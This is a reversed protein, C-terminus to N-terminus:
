RDVQIEVEALEEEPGQSTEEPEATDVRAGLCEEHPMSAQMDNFATLILNRTKETATQFEELSQIGDALVKMSGNAQALNTAHEHLMHEVAELRAALENVKTEHESLKNESQETRNECEAM